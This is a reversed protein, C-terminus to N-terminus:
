RPMRPWKAVMAKIARIAGELDEITTAEDLMTVETLFESMYTFKFQDVFEGESDFDDMRLVVEGSNLRQRTFLDVIEGSM